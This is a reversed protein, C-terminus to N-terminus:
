FAKEKQTIDGFLIVQKVKKKKIYIGQKVRLLM